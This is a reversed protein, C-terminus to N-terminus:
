QRRDLARECAVKRGDDVHHDILVRERRHHVLLLATLWPSIVMRKKSDIASSSNAAGVNAWSLSEPLLTSIRMPIANLTDSAASRLSTGSPQSMLGGVEPGLWPAFRVMVITLWDILKSGSPLGSLGNRPTANPTGIFFFPLSAVTLMIMAPRKVRLPAGPAYPSYRGACTVISRLSRWSSSPLLVTSSDQSSRASPPFKRCM